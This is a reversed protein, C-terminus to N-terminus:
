RTVMFNQTSISRRLIFLKSCSWKQSFVLIRVHRVTSIWFESKTKHLHSMSRRRDRLSSAVSIRFTHTVQTGPPKSMEATSKHKFSSSQIWVTTRYNGSRAEQVRHSKSAFRTAMCLVITHGLGNFHFCPIGSSPKGKREQYTKYRRGTVNLVPIHM